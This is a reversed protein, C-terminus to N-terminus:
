HLMVPAPHDLTFDMEDLEFDFEPSAHHLLMRWGFPTKQFVNTALMVSVLQGGIEIEERVTHIAVNGLCQRRTDSITFDMVPAPDEFMQEFGARIDALGELRSTGPHVCAVTDNELWVSMMAKLDHRELADYFALEAEEPTQYTNTMQVKITAEKSEIM